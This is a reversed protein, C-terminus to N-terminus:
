DESDEYEGWDLLHEKDMLWAGSHILGQAVFTLGLGMMACVWGLAHRFISVWTNSEM